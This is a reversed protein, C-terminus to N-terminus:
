LGSCRRLTRIGQASTMRTCGTFKGLGGPDLHKLLSKADAACTPWLSTILEDCGAALDASASLRQSHPVFGFGEGPAVPPAV